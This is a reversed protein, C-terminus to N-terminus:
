EDDVGLNRKIYTEIGDELGWVAEGNCKKDRVQAIHRSKITVSM